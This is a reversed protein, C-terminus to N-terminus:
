SVLLSFIARSGVLGLSKAATMEITWVNTRSGGGDWMKAENKSEKKETHLLYM